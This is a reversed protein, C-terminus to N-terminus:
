RYHNWGTIISIIQNNVKRTNLFFILITNQIYIYLINKENLLYTALLKLTVLDQYKNSYRKYFYSSRSYMMPVM